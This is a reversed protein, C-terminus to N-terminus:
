VLSIFCTVFLVFRSDSGFDAEMDNGEPKMCEAFCPALFKELRHKDNGEGFVAKRNAKELKRDAGLGDESAATSSNEGLIHWSSDRRPHTLM